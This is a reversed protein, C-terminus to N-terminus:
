DYQCQVCACPLPFSTRVCLCWLSWMHRFFEIMLILKSTAAYMILEWINTLKQYSDFCLFGIHWFLDIALVNNHLKKRYPEDNHSIDVRHWQRKVYVWFNACALFTSSSTVADVILYLVYSFIVHFFFSRLLENHDSQWKSVSWLWSATEESRVKLDLWFMLVQCRWWQRLLTWEFSQDMM